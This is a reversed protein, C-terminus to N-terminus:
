VQMLSVPHWVSVVSLSFLAKVCWHNVHVQGRPGAPTHTHTRRLYHTLAHTNPEQCNHCCKSTQAPTSPWTSRQQSCRPWALLPGDTWRVLASKTLMQHDGGGACGGEQWYTSCTVIEVTDATLGGRVPCAEWQACRTLAGTLQWDFGTSVVRVSAITPKQRGHWLIVCCKLQVVSLHKKKVSTSM